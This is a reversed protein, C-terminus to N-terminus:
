SKAKPKTGVRSVFEDIFQNYDEAAINKGSKFNMVDTQQAQSEAVRVTQRITTKFLITELADATEQMMLMADKGFNTRENFQTLLIGTISLNPNTYARCVDITESLQGIGMLSYIEAKAPILVQDSATLANITEIGLSPPTDILIFDYKTRIDKLAEKIRFEKGTQTLVFDLNVLNRDAPIIDIQEAHHITDKHNASQHFLQLVTSDTDTVGVTYSLSCQPDLDILLVKYGREKLGIGLAHTTTTKGVGGKQNIVSIIM